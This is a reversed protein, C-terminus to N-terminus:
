KTAVTGRPSVSALEWAVRGARVPLCGVQVVILLLSLLVHQLCSSLWGSCCSSAGQDSYIRRRCCRMPAGRRHSILEVRLVHRLDDQCAGLRAALHIYSGNRFNTASM